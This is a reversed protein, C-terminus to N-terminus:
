AAADDKCVIYSNLVRLTIEFNSMLDNSAASLVHELIELYFPRQSSPIRM